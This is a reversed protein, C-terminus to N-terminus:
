SQMGQLESDRSTAHLKYSTSSLPSAVEGKPATTTNVRAVYHDFILKYLHRCLADRVSAAQKPELPKTYEEVVGGGMRRTTLAASLAAAAGDRDAPDPRLMAEACEGLATESACCSGGDAGITSEVFALNGLKLVLALM